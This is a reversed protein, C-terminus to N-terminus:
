FEAWPNKVQSLHKSELLSLQDSQFLWGNPATIMKHCREFFVLGFLVMKTAIDVTTSM